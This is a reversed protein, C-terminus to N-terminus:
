RGPGPAPPSPATIAESVRARLSQIRGRYRRAQALEWRPTEPGGCFVGALASAAGWGRGPKDVAIFHSGPIIKPFFVHLEDEAGV